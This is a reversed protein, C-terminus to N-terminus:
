DKEKTLQRRRWRQQFTEGDPAALDRGRVFGFGAWPLRRIWRRDAGSDPVSLSRLLRALMAVAVRYLFPSRGLRCWLGLGLREAFATQRLGEERWRRLLAPIPIGVPCVEACRGCLTSAQPLHHAQALGALGPTLVAGMPGSYVSGYAHGGVATYVPCHNLCASCRICRLIDQFPTGLLGSRGGDLLIVHFSRPGSVDDSRRAGHVLTTYTSLPEGIASRALLRLLVGLDELTPVVKEIGTIVIHTDPLSATLDANGENTVIVVSGTEAVLFNAGTIGVDANLFRGRLEERAETLMENAETLPHTRKRNHSAEFTQGVQALSLHLAPALIHSPTEGRLQIIYEGLDTETVELGAKALADNLGIEETVM